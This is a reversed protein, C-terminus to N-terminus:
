EFGIGDGSDALRLLLIGLWGGTIDTGRLDLRRIRM